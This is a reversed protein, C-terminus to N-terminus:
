KYSHRLVGIGKPYPYNVRTDEDQKAKVQENEATILQMGERILQENTLLKSVIAQM